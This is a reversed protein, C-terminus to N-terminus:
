PTGQAVKLRRETESLEQLAEDVWPAPSLTAQQVIHPSVRLQRHIPAEYLDYREIKAKETLRDIEDQDGPRPDPGTEPKFDGPKDPLREFEITKKDPM